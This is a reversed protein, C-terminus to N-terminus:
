TYLCSALGHKDVHTSLGKEELKRTKLAIKIQQRNKKRWHETIAKNMTEATFFAFIFLWM